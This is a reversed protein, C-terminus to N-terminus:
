DFRNMISGITDECYYMGYFAYSFNTVGNTNPNYEPDNPYTSITDYNPIHDRAYYYMTSISPTRTIPFLTCDRDILEQFISSAYTTPISLNENTIETEM